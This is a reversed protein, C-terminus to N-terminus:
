TSADAPVEHITDRPFNTERRALSNCVRRVALCGLAMVAALGAWRTPGAEFVIAGNIAVFLLFVHVMVRWVPTTQPAYPCTPVSTARESAPGHPSGVPGLNAVTKDKAPLWLWVADALWLLLFLYSFYIGDGVAVGLLEKTREATHRWAVAHSWRHYFHFACAVHVDFLICGLTWIARAARPRRAAGSSLCMGLYGVYCALSLRITWKTLLVGLM